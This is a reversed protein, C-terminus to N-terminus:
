IKGTKIEPVKEYKRVIDIFNLILTKNLIEPHFQTTYIAKSRHKMMSVKCRISHALVIFDKPLTISDYHSQRALFTDGYGNFVPDQRDIFVSFDGLEVEERRLLQSGYLRGIIHHGACIGFIPVDCTKIWQFYPQHHEVIDDGAPSGSLVIADYKSMNTNMSLTEEYEIVDSDAAAEEFIKKLPKVFEMIGREANNVISIKTM